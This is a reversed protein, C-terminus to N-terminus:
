LGLSPQKARESFKTLGSPVPSTKEAALIRQGLAVAIEGLDSDVLWNTGPGGSRWYIAYRETAAVPPPADDDRLAVEVIGRNSGIHVEVALRGDAIPGIAVVEAPGLRDGPALGNLFAPPPGAHKLRQEESM